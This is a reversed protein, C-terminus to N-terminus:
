ISFYSGNNKLGKVTLESLLQKVPFDKRCKFFSLYQNLLPPPLVIPYTRVTRQAVPRGKLGQLVVTAKTQPEWRRRPM